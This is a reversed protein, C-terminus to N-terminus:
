IKLYSKFCSLNKRKMGYNTLKSILIEHNVTDFTKSLDIFIGFTFYSNKFKENMQDILQLAANGNGFILCSNIFYM